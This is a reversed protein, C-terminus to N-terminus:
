VNPSSNFNPALLSPNLPHSANRAASGRWPVFLTRLLARGAPTALKKLNMVAATLYSQIRVEPLGRRAARRLGHQQEARGHVGEVCWRHRTYEERTADDWGNEKRRRARLLASYGDVILVMRARTKSSICRERLPCTRRDCARTRFWYGNDTTSRGSRHLFNDAPCTVRVKHEVYEIRRLPIRQVADKRRAVTQPAIVPDIGRRELEAYNKPHAYGCDVTVTEVSM